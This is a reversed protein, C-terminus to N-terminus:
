HTVSVDAIALYLSPSVRLIKIRKIEQRPLYRGRDRQAINAHRM